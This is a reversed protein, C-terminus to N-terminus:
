LEDPIVPKTDYLNQGCYKYKDNQCIDYFYFSYDYSSGKEKYKIEFITQFGEDSHYEDPRRIKSKNVDRKNIESIVLEKRRAGYLTSTSWLTDGVKLKRIAEYAAQPTEYRKMKLKKNMRSAKNKKKQYEKEQEVPNYDQDLLMSELYAEDPVIEVGDSAYEITLCYVADSEKGSALVRKAFVIGDQNDIVIYKMPPKNDDYWGPGTMYKQSAKYRILVASGVEFGKCEQSKKLIQKFQKFESCNLIRRQEEASIKREVIESM